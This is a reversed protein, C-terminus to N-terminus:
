LGRANIIEDQCKALLKQDRPLRSDDSSHKTLEERVLMLRRQLTNNKSNNRDFWIDEFKNKYNIFVPRLSAARRSVEGLGLFPAAVSACVAFISLGDWVWGWDFWALQAKWLQLAAIASTSVIAVFILLVKEYRAYRRAIYGYYLANMEADLMEEWVAKEVEGM